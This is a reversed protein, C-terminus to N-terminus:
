KLLLEKLFPVGLTIVFVLVVIIGARKNEKAELESVRLELKATDKQQMTIKDEISELKAEVRGSSEILKMLVETTNTEPTM